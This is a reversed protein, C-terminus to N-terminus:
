ESRSLLGIADTLVQGARGRLVLHALSDYPTPTANIVVLRGGHDLALGPLSAAPQITLSSGIALFLQASASLAMARELEKEPLNQGFSITAPKLWGGCIHCGPVLEGQRVRELVAATDHSRHCNLCLTRDIRGHLEIIKDPNHGALHHLRDVNQTIVASLRGTRELEVLALHGANPKVQTFPPYFELYRQWYQERASASSQFEAYTVPRYRTWVGGPSRFDPLGSETSIGAGTFAIIRQSEAIM